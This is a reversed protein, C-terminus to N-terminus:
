KNKKAARTKAAKLAPLQYLNIAAALYGRVIPDIQAHPKALQYAARLVPLSLEGIYLLTDSLLRMKPDISRKIKALTLYRQLRDRVIKTEFLTPNVGKDQNAMTVFLGAYSRDEALNLVGSLAEGERDKFKGDSAQRAEETLEILTGFKKEFESEILTIFSTVRQELEKPTIRLIELDVIESGEETVGQLAVEALKTPSKATSKKSSTKVTKSKRVATTQKPKTM